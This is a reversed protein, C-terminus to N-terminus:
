LQAPDTSDLVHITPFSESKGFVRWFVEPALSSSGMGILLVDRFHRDRVWNQFKLLSSLAQQQKNVIELWGLWSAEDQNTWLSADQRFLKEVWREENWLRKLNEFRAELATPLSLQM